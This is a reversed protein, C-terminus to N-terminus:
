QKKTDDNKLKITYEKTVLESQDGIVSIIMKGENGHMYLHNLHFLPLSIKQGPYINEDFNKSEWIKEQYSSQSQIDEGLENNIVPSGEFENNYKWGYSDRRNNDLYKDDIFVVINKFRIQIYINKSMVFGVNEMIINDVVQDLYFACYKFKKKNIIIYKDISDDSSTNHGVYITDNEDIYNNEDSADQLSLKTELKAGNASLTYSKKSEELSIISVLLAFVTVLGILFNFLNSYYGIFSDTKKMISINEKKIKNRGRQISKKHRKNVHRKNIYRKVEKM